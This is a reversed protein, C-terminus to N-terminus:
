NAQIFINPPIPLDAGGTPKVVIRVAARDIKVGAARTCSASAGNASVTCTLQPASVAAIVYGKTALAYTGSRDGAPLVLLSPAVTVAGNAVTVQATAAQAGSVLVVQGTLVAALALVARLSHSM